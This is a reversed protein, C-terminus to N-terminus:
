GLGVGYIETAIKELLETGTSDKFLLDGYNQVVIEVGHVQIVVLIDTQLLTEFTAAIKKLNLTQKRRLKAMFAAKTKCKAITFNLSM